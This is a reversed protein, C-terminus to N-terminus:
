YNNIYVVLSLFYINEMPNNTVHINKESTFKLPSGHFTFRNKENRPTVRKQIFEEQPTALPNRLNERIKCIGQYRYQVDFNNKGLHLLRIDNFYM